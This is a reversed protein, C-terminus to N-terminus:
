GWWRGWREELELGRVSKRWRRCGLVMGWVVKWDAERWKGRQRAVVMVVWVRGVVEGTRREVVWWGKVGVGGDAGGWWRELVVDGWEAEWWRIVLGIVVLEVVLVWEVM